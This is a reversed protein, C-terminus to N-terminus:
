GSKSEKVKRPYKAGNETEKIDVFEVEFRYEDGFDYIYLFKQKLKLGMQYIKAKDARKGEAQPHSYETTEDWAKNSMFFAYLHGWELGFSVFITEHLAHLTQSGKIEIQKWTRKEYYNKVKFVYVKNPSNEIEVLNGAKKVPTNKPRERIMDTFEVDESEDLSIMNIERSNEIIEYIEDDKLGTIGKQKRESKKGKLIIQEGLPTLDYTSCPSFLIIDFGEGYKSAEMVDRIENEMEYSFTYLPQILQLYYGFPTLFFSDFLTGMSYQMAAMMMEDENDPEFGNELKKNIRDFDAKMPGFAKDFIDEVVWSRKLYSEINKVSFPKWDFPFAQSLLDSAINISATIIRNLKTENDLELFKEASQSVQGRSTGISPLKKLLGLKWAVNTLYDVYHDTHFLFEEEFKEKEEKILMNDEDIGADPTFHEVLLVLDNVVPHEYKSLEAIRNFFGSLKRNKYESVISPFVMIDRGFEEEVQSNIINAPTIYTDEILASYYWKKFMLQINDLVIKKHKKDLRSYVEIFRDEFEEVAKIISKREGIFDYVNKM